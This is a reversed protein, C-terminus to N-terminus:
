KVTATLNTPPDPRNQAGYCNDANFAYPGGAGGDTGGMVNYFCNMAPNAIAYAHGGPGSGGTVDPGVSPWPISDGWWAPKSNLYFSAPLTHTVGNAWTTSSDINNYVGHIFSTSYPNTSDFSDSGDDGFLSYGFSFGYSTGNYNRTTPWKVLAIKNGSLGQQQSSGLVDGVFNSSVSLSDDAIARAGDTTYFGKSGSCTITGRSDISTNCVKGTGQFWNRFSTTQSTSGHGVDLWLQPVVNGEVLNFQEHASHWEITLTISTPEGYCGTAYNYSVVNGAAGFQLMVPNECRDIINNEIKGASAKFGVWVANNNTGPGHSFGNSFYSDRIEFHLAWYVKTYDGDTYNEEVGKIWCYLCSYLAIPANRESTHTNNSYIQLNEIGTYRTPTFPLAQPSLTYATYLAPAITITTSGSHQCSPSCSVIEVTQGRSRDGNWFGDCYTCSDSPGTKTVYSSDNLEQIVAAGGATFYKGDSVTITTSGATAGATINVSNSVPDGTGYNRGPDYGQGITIYGDQNTGTSNLITQDAGSGRLVVGSTSLNLQPSGAGSSNFLFTGPGLLVYTNQSCSAIASNIASTADTTGNGYTSAQITSGCQTYSASPIGGPVGANSWDIASQSVNKQNASLSNLIGSWDQAYSHPLICFLAMAFTVTTLLLGARRSTVKRLMRM